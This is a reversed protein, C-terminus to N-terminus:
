RKYSWLELSLQIAKDYEDKNIKIFKSRVNSFLYRKVCMPAIRELGTVGDMIMDWNSYSGSGSKIRNSFRHEIKQEEVSYLLASRQTGKLYHLNLGLFGDPYKDVVLALPYKDWIPLKDKTKADYKFFYIEGAFTSDGDTSRNSANLITKRATISSAALAKTEFWETLEDKDYKKAM